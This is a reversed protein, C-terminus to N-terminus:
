YLGYGQGLVAAFVNCQAHLFISAGVGKTKDRLIGFLLSPFFVALRGLHPTTTLHGVAFLLSSVVLGLSLRLGGIRLAKDWRRDLATQLYGRFFAEEPLAVVLLHALSLNLLGLLPPGDTPGLALAWNFTSKPGYWYLYGLWFPPLIVLAILTATFFAFTTKKVMPKLSLPASDFLGGLELGYSRPPHSHEPRLCGFYTAVLFILGVAEGAHEESITYSALTALGSVLVSVM